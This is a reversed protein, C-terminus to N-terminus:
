CWVSLLVVAHADVVNHEWNEEGYVGRDFGCQMVLMRFAKRTSALGVERFQAEQLSKQIDLLKTAGVSRSLVM